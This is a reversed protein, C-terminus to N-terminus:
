CRYIFDAFEAEGGIRETAFAFLGFRAGCFHDLGFALKKTGLSVFEGDKSAYFFEATDVGLSFDCRIQIRVPGQGVLVSETIRGEKDDFGGMRGTVEEAKRELFVIFSSNESKKLAIAGYDGLLVCMGAYDGNKMREPYLTVEAVPKEGLMRQTLTNTAQTLNQCIQGTTLTFRGKTKTVSWLVDNPEHNWQWQKPLISKGNADTKWCFDDSVALPETQSIEESFLCVEKPVSEGDAFVPFGDEFTVPVLVPIRGIAGHDQFLVSYYEGSPTDVIGGQAVGSHRGDLDSCLVDRGTFEGTLSDSVFCSETRIGGKPWHIFFLYYRGGIKYFHTGEYGLMAADTDRVVIRDVGGAKPGSLDEKLETLHIERNGYAIYVRGDDDFLLSCDHYFGEISKKEWPGEIEKATYLYTKKTDNAVFAVYFTGEHYRLSAAWMGRGYIGKKDSLTQGETSDLREFVYSAIEWHCLDKSRLIVGGPMFHMTTSIMYYTDRVRIVDPDPYDSYIMPNTVRIQKM